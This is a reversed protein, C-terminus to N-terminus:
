ETPTVQPEKQKKSKRFPPILGTLLYFIIFLVVFMIELVAPHFERTEIKFGNVLYRWNEELDQEYKSNILGMSGEGYVLYSNATEGKYEFSVCNGRNNVADCDLQKFIVTLASRVTEDPIKKVYDILSINFEKDSHTLYNAVNEFDEKNAHFDSILEEQSMKLVPNNFQKESQISYSIKQVCFVLICSLSLATCIRFVKRWFGCKTGKNSSAFVNGLLLYVIICAITAITYRVSLPVKDMPFVDYFTDAYMRATRVNEIQCYVYFGLGTLYFGVGLALLIRAIQKAMQKSIKKM